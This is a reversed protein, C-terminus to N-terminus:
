EEDRTERILDAATNSDGRERRLRERVREARERVRGLLGPDRVGGSAAQHAVAELDALSEDQSRAASAPPESHAPVGNAAEKEALHQLYAELTQGLRGAKERLKTVTDPTLTLTVHSM